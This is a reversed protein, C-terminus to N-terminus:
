GRGKELAHAELCAESCFREASGTRATLARAPDFYTGCHACPELERSEGGAPRSRDTASSSAAAAGSLARALRGILRLAILVLVVIALYRLLVTDL